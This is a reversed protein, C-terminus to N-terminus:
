AASTKLGNLTSLVTRLHPPEHWVMAEGLVQAAASLGVQSDFVQYLAEILSEDIPARAARSLACSLELSPDTLM